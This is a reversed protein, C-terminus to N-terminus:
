RTLVANERMQETVSLRRSTCNRISLQYGTKYDNDEDIYFSICAGFRGMNDKETIILIPAGETIKAIEKIQGSADAAIIIVNENAAEAQTIRRISFTVNSNTKKSFLKKLEAEVPTNGIIGIHIHKNKQPWSTYKIFNYIYVANEVYDFQQSYAKVASIVVIFFLIAVKRM